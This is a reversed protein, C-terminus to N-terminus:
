KAGTTTIRTLGTGDPKVRYLEFFRPRDRASRLIVQGDRTWGSPVDDAMHNSINRVDSGDANMVYAEQNGERNSYFAILKGNPSYSPVGTHKTGGTQDTTTLARRGTGDSNMVYVEGHGTQTSSFLITKGDPSFSPGIAVASDRTLQRLNSGDANM